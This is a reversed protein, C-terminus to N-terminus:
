IGAPSTWMRAPPTTFSSTTGTAAMRTPSPARTQRGHGRQHGRGIPHHGRDDGPLERGYEGHGAHVPLLGGLRGGRPSLRRKQGARPHQHGGRGRGRPQLADAHRGGGQPLLPRPLRGRRRSLHFRRVGARVRGPGAHAPPFHVHPEGRGRAGADLGGTGGGRRLRQAGGGLGAHPGGRRPLPPRQLDHGRQDARHGFGRDRGRRDGGGGGVTGGTLSFGNPMLAQLAVGLALVGVCILIFPLMSRKQPVFPRAPAAHARSVPPRDGQRSPQRGQPHSGGQPRPAGAPRPTNPVSM